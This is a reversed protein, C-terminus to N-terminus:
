YIHIFFNNGITTLDYFRSEVKPHSNGLLPVLTAQCQYRAEDSSMLYNFTITTHTTNGSATHSIVVREPQGSYSRGDKLWVANVDVDSNSIANNLKIICELSVNNGVYTVPRDAVITISMSPQPVSFINLPLIYNICATSSVLLLCHPQILDM